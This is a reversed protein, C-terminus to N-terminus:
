AGPSSGGSGQDLHARLQDISAFRVVGEPLQADIAGDSYLSYAMGNVVGSRLVTTPSVTAPSVNRDAAGALQDGRTALRSAPRPMEHDAPHVAPASLGSREARGQERERVTSAFLLNRRPKPQSTQDSSAQFEADPVPAVTARDRDAPTHDREPAQGPRRQSLVSPAARLDSGAAPALRGGDALPPSDAIPRGPPIPVRVDEAHMSSHHVTVAGSGFRDGSGLLDAVKQLERVVVSLSVMILGTCTVVAGSVIMTDGFSFEKIPIGFAVMVLGTVFVGFGAISLVSM